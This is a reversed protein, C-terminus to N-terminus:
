LSWKVHKAKKEVAIAKANSATAMHNATIESKIPESKIPSLKTLKAEQELRALVSNVQERGPVDASGSAKIQEMDFPLEKDSDSMETKERKIPVSPPDERVLVLNAREYM